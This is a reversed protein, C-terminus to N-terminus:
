LICYAFKRFTNILKTTATLGDTRGCRVVRVGSSPNDFFPMIESLKCLLQFLIRAQRFRALTFNLKCLTFSYKYSRASNNNSFSANEFYNTFSIFFVFKYEIVDKRFITYNTLCYLCQNSGSVHCM